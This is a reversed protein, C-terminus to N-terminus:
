REKRMMYKDRREFIKEMRTKGKRVIREDKKKMFWFCIKGKKKWLCFIRDM